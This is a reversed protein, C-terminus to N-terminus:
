EKVWDFFPDIDDIGNVNNFYQNKEGKEFKGVSQLFAPSETNRRTFSLSLEKDGNTISVRTSLGIADIHELQINM